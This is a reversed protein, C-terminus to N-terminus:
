NQFKFIAELISPRMYPHEKTGKTAIKRAILYAVKHVEKPKVGLKIRVWDDLVGPPIWHPETGYEVWQAYPAKYHIRYACKGIKTIDADQLLNSTFISNHEVILEQSRTFIYDAIDHIKQELQDEPEDGSIELTAGM